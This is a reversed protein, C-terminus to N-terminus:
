AEGLEEVMLAVVSLWAGYSVIGILTITMM